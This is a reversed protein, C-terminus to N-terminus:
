MYTIGVKILQTSVVCQTAAGDECPAQFLEKSKETMWIEFVIHTPKNSLSLPSAPSIRGTGKRTPLANSGGALGEAPVAKVTAKWRACGDHTLLSIAKLFAHQWPDVGYLLQYSCGFTMHAVRYEEPVPCRALHFSAGAPTCGDYM